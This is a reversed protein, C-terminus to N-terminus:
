EILVPRCGSDALKRARSFHFHRGGAVYLSLFRMFFATLFRTDRLTDLLDELVIESSAAQSVKIV